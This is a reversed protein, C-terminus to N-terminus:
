AISLPFLCLPAARRPPMEFCATLLVTIFSMFLCGSSAGNKRRAHRPARSAARPKCARPTKTDHGGVAVSPRDPPSQHNSISQKHRGFCVSFLRFLCFRLFPLRSSCFGQKVPNTSQNHSTSEFWRLRLGASKCDARTSRKLIGCCPARPPVRVRLSREVHVELM